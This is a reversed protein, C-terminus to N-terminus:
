PTLDYIGTNDFNVRFPQNGSYGSPEDVMFGWWRKNQWTGDTASLVQVDNVYVLINAGSRNVRMTNWDTEKIQVTATTNTDLDIKNNHDVKQLKYDYGSGDDKVRIFARYYGGREEYWSCNSSDWPWIPYDTDGSGEVGFILGFKVSPYKTRDIGTMDLLSFETEIGYDPTMRDDDFHNSQLMTRGPIAFGLRYSLVRSGNGVTERLATWDGDGNLCWRPDEEGNFTFERYLTGKVVAPPTPTPDRRVLPMYTKHWPVGSIMVNDVFAGLGVPTETDSSQFFFALYVPRATLGPCNLLDFTTTIWHALHGSMSQGCFTTGDSSAGWRFYTGPQADLYFAFQAQFHSFQNADLPGYVAWADMSKTYTNGARVSYDTPVGLGPDLWAGLTNTLHSTPFDAAKLVRGWTPLGTANDFRNWNPDTYFANDAFTQTYFPTWQIALSTSAKVAEHPIEVFRFPGRLPPPPAAVTPQQVFALAVLVVMLTVGAALILLRPERLRRLRPANRTQKSIM